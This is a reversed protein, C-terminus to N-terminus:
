SRCAGAISGHHLSLLPFTFCPQKTAPLLFSCQQEQRPPLFCCNPSSNSFFFLAATPFSPSFLLLPLLFFFSSFATILATCTSSFFFFLPSFFTKKKISLVIWWSKQENMLCFLPKDELFNEFVNVILNGVNSIYMFLKLIYKGHIQQFEDLFKYLTAHSFSAISQYVVM